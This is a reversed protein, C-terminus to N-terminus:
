RFNSNRMEDADAVAAAVVSVAVGAARLEDAGVQTMPELRWYWDNLDTDGCVLYM